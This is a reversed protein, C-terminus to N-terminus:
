RYLFHSGNHCIDCVCYPLVNTQCFRLETAFVTLPIIIAAGILNSIVFGTLVTKNTVLAPYQLPHVVAVYRDIAMLSLHLTLLAQLHSAVFVQLICAGYPVPFFNFIMVTLMRPILTNCTVLDIAALAGIYFFMPTQLQHNSIIVLIVLMNGLFTTIYIFSVVAIILSKQESAVACHLVFESISTSSNAM